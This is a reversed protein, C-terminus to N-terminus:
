ANEIFARLRTKIEDCRERARSLKERLTVLVFRIQGAVQRTGDLSKEIRSQVIWDTILNDFFYDAFTAFSGIDIEMKEVTQVDILERQFQRLLRQVAHATNRAEDIKSHKVATSILGGGILDWTGWNRADRLNDIMEEVGALAQEGAHIAEQLERIDSQVEAQAESLEILQRTVDNQAQAIAKEKLELITRYQLDLDGFEALRSSLNEVDHELSYVLANCADYKLKAALFEQREKELQQDKGGLVTYFLATLSLGQLKEVDRNEKKLNEALQNRRTRETELLARVQALDDQVKQRMRLKEKVDILQRNLDDLM